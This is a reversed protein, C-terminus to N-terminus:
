RRLIRKAGFLLPSKNNGGDNRDHHHEHRRHPCCETTLSRGALNTDHHRGRTRHTTRDLALTTRSGAVPAPSRIATVIGVSQCNLIAAPGRLDQRSM